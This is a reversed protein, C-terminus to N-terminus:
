SFTHFFLRLATNTSSHVVFVDSVKIPSALVCVCVVRPDRTRQSAKTSWRNEGHGVYTEGADAVVKGKKEQGQQGQTPSIPFGLAAADGGGKGPGVHNMVFCACVQRRQASGLTRLGEQNQAAEMKSQEGERERVSVWEVWVGQEM